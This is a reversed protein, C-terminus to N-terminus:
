RALTRLESLMGAGKRQKTGAPLNNKCGAHAGSLCRRLRWAGLTIIQLHQLLRGTLAGLPEELARQVFDPLPEAQYLVQNPVSRFVPIEFRFWQNPTAEACLDWHFGVSALGM